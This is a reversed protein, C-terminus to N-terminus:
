LWDKSKIAVYSFNLAHKAGYEVNNDGETKKSFDTFKYDYNYFPITMENVVLSTSQYNKTEIRNGRGLVPDIDLIRAWDNSVIFPSAETTLVYFESVIFTAFLITSENLSM